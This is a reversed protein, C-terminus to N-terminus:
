RDLPFSWTEDVPRVSRWIRGLVTGVRRRLEEANSDVSLSPAVGALVKKNDGVHYGIEAIASEGDVAIRWKAVTRTASQLPEVGEEPVSATLPGTTSLLEVCDDGFQRTLFLTAFRTSETFDNSHRESTVSENEIQDDPQDQATTTIESAPVDSTDIEDMKKELEIDMKDVRIRAQEDEAEQKLSLADAQSHEVPLNVAEKVIEEAAGEVGLPDDAGTVGSSIDMPHEPLNSTDSEDLVEEISAKQPADSSDDHDSHHHHHHSAGKTAKVDARASGAQLLVGLVSDAVLDEMGGGREWEVTWVRLNSSQVVKVCGFVIFSRKGTMEVDGYMNELHWKVIGFPARCAIHQKQTLNVVQLDTFAPLDAPDLLHYEFDRCVLIGSLPAMDAPEAAALAGITKALKEGRFYLEVTECNRPTHINLPIEREAYRSQLASRLRGMENSDGHVLILHASGVEEIFASNERYDVHASFSVYDVSLRLPLKSGSMSVIEEPQSLIQKGLTGEVVYGPIIVGNKKDVCWLELLERSLGNQLMGPSAMMVCPGVDEFQAMSKLNSIHKFQFPNSIKVQQRIRANMMNTYTQYVTMCKKALSSAYYIPVNHLEGHAQWYEDLILLLEQARGLAFVPLLCRGGRQVIDHVTRTFRAEREVRPEHSQVGYTSECILVEPTVNPPREAAMLHRDEERSYDGTYLVRVGAIEILFMAAGLVHGANYPTFRIGEVEVEQHYDVVEIKEYSRALDQENYLQDESSLNSIKVYDSLLWKYIAKTPHTMFVRGNFTTKEMFYPLAAAHDVHFHSILLVDISSPDVEDLFPLAALGTYAPHLGCDLMITKGKYELLLCSRGVEQGAGLPTIRMIDADNGVPIPTPAEKRKSAHQPGM